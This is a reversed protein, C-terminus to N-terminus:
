QGCPLGIIDAMQRAVMMFGLLQMVVVTFLKDHGGRTADEVTPDIVLVYVESLKYYSISIM